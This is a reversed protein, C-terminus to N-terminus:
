LFRLWKGAHLFVDKASPTVVAGRRALVEGDETQEVMRRAVAETIVGGPLDAERASVKPPPSASVAGRATITCAVGPKWGCANAEDHDIHLALSFSGSVRVAVQALTVPRASAVHVGVAQGDSVGFSAADAPTMHLHARAAIAAGRAEYIGHSGMLWVDAGGTLDGSLNVPIDIGLARADTLSLEVQVAKRPPGLVAVDGISGHPTFVRVRRDSLFEGPQSLRRTEGLATGPGFLDRLAQETLHVHRASVEVSIDRLPSAPVRYDALVESIIERIEQEDM